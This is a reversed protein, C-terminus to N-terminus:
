LYADGGAAGLPKKTSLTQIQDELIGIFYSHEDCDNKLHPCHPVFPHAAHLAVSWYPFCPWSGWCPAGSATNKDPPRAVEGAVGQQWLDKADRRTM